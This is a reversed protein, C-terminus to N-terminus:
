SPDSCSGGRGPHNPKDMATRDPCSEPLGAQSRITGSGTRRRHMMVASSKPNCAATLSATSLAWRAPTRQAALRMTPAAATCSAACRPARGASVAPRVAGSAPRHAPPAAAAASGPGPRHRCDSGRCCPRQRSPSKRAGRRAPRLQGRFDARLKRGEGCQSQLEIMQIRVLVEMQVGRYQRQGQRNTSLEAQARHAYRSFRAQDCGAQQAGPEGQHPDAQPASAHDAVILDIPHSMASRHM